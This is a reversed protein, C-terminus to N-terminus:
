FLRHVMRLIRKRMRHRMRRRAKGRRTKFAPAFGFYRIQSAPVALTVGASAIPPYSVYSVSTSPVEISFDGSATITPVAGTYSVSGVPVAVTQPNGGTVTPAFETYSVSAAPVEVAFNASISVQPAIGSYTVSGSPVTNLVNGPIGYDLTVYGDYRSFPTLYASGPGLSPAKNGAFAVPTLGTYSIAGVPPIIAAFGSSGIASINANLNRRYGEQFRLGFGFVADQLARSNPSDEVFSPALGTYTITGTPIEASADATVAATNPVLYAGVDSPYDLYRLSAAQM